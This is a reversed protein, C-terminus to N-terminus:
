KEQEKKCDRGFLEGSCSAPRLRFNWDRDGSGDYRYLHDIQLVIGESVYHRLSYGAQATSIASAALLLFSLGMIKLLRM